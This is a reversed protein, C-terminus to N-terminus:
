NQIIPKFYPEPHLAVEAFSLQLIATSMDDTKSINQLRFIPQSANQPPRADKSCAAGSYRDPSVAKPM